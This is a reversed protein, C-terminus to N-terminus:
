SKIEKRLEALLSRNLIVKAKSLKERLAPKVIDKKIISLPVISLKIKENNILEKTICSVALVEIPNENIIYIGMLDPFYSDLLKLAERKIDLPRKVVTIKVESGLLIKPLIVGASNGVKVTKRILEM